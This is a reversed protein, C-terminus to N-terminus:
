NALTTLVVRNQRYADKSKGAVIPNDKGYSIATIRRTAIGGKVLYNKVANARKQGLALNFASSGRSDCYGAVEIDVDPYGKLIALQSQLTEKQDKDVVAKGYRFYVRDNGALLNQMNTAKRVGVTEYCGGLALVILLTFISFSKRKVLLKM